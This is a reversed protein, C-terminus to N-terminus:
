SQSTGVQPPRCPIPGLSYPHGQGPDPPHATRTQDDRTELILEELRRWHAAHIEDTADPSCRITELLEEIPPPVDDIHRFALRGNPNPKLGKIQEYTHWDGHARELLERATHTHAHDLVEPQGNIMTLLLHRNKFPIPCTHGHAPGGILQATLRTTAPRRHGPAAPPHRDDSRM